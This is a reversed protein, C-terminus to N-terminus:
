AAGSISCSAGDTDTLPLGAYAIMGPESAESDSVQEGQRADALVLSRGTAALLARDVDVMAPLFEGSGVLAIPGPGPM